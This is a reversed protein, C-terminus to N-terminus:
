INLPKEFMKKFVDYNNTEWDRCYIAFEVTDFYYFMCNIKFLEAVPFPPNHYAGCGWAGLILVEVGQKKAIQFLHRLRPSAESYYKDLDVKDYRGLQPAALTAIDVKFWEDEELLTPIGNGNKFVVVDPSYILDGNGWDDLLGRDWLRKHNNYFSEEEKELCEYLTTERCLSEEQANSSFPAGGRHHNNAFNLVLVKKGKYARAADLSRKKSVIINTTPGDCVQDIDEDEYLVFQKEKTNEIAEVLTPNEKCMEVTHNMVYWNMSHSDNSLELVEKNYKENM